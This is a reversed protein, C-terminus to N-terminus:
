KQWEKILSIYKKVLEKSKELSGSEAIVQFLARRRDPRMLIWAGDETLRVGDVLLRKKNETFEMLNRMVQGKM